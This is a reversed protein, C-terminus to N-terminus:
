FFLVKAKNEILKVGAPIVLFGDALSLHYLDAPGNYELQEIRKGDYRIPIFNERDRQKVILQEKIEVEEFFNYERSQMKYIVPLVFLHYALFVAVPNGPLSFVLKGKYLFCGTPRAPRISLGSFIEEAEVSKLMKKVYDFRGVSAGGTFILFDSKEIKAKFEEEVLAYDDTVHSFDAVDVVESLLGSLLEANANYVQYEGRSEDASIIENGTTIVAVKPKPFVKVEKVGAFSLTARKRADIKTGCPYLLQGKKIDEGVLCINSPVDNVDCALIVSTKENKCTLEKPIVKWANLPVPAGTLIKVAKGDSLKTSPIDGAPTFDVVQLIKQSENKGIAYGDMASKNFSPLDIQAFVSSSLTYNKSKFVSVKRCPLSDVSSLIKDLASKSNM